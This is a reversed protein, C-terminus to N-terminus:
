SLCYEIKNVTPDEVHVVPKVCLEICSDLHFLHRHCMGAMQLNCLGDHNTNLQLCTVLNQGFIYVSTIQLVWNEGDRKKKGRCAPVQVNHILWSQGFPHHFHLLVKDKFLKMFCIRKGVRSWLNKKFKPDRICFSIWFGAQYLAQILIAKSPMFFLLIM